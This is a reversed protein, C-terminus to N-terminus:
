LIINVQTGTDKISQIHISGGIVDLIEKVLVLGLGAGKEDQTGLNPAADLSFLGDFTYEDMGTGFDKIEVRLQNDVRAVAFIIKGGQYSFKIANDIVKVLISKILLKSGMIYVENDGLFELSLEKKNIQDSFSEKIEFFLERLNIAKKDTIINHHQVIASLFTDDLAKLNKQINTEFEPVLETFMDASISKNKLLDLVWVLNAFVGKFDHSLLALWAKNQKKSLKLDDIEKELNNVHQILEQKELDQLNM